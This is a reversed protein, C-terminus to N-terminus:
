ANKKFGKIYAAVSTLTDAGFAGKFENTLKFAAMELASNWGAEYLKDAEAKSLVEVSETDIRSDYCACGREFCAKDITTM